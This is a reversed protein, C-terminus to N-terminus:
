SVLDAADIDDGCFECRVLPFVEDALYVAENGCRPCTLMIAKRREREREGGGESEPAPSRGRSADDVTGDAWSV